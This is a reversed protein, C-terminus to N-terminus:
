LILQYEGQGRPPFVFSQTVILKVLYYIFPLMYYVYFLYYLNYMQLSQCIVLETLLDNKDALNFIIHCKDVNADMFITYVYRLKHIVKIGYIGILFNSMFFSWKVIWHDMMCYIFWSFLSVSTLIILVLLNREVDSLYIQLGIMSLLQELFKVHVRELYYFYIFVCHFFISQTSIFLKM